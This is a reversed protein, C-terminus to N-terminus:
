GVYVRMVYMKNGATYVAGLYSDSITPKVKWATITTGDVTKYNSIDISEVLEGDDVNYTRLYVKQDSATTSEPADIVYYLSGGRGMLTLSRGNNRNDNPPYKGWVENFSSDYKVIRSLVMGSRKGACVFNNGDFMANVIYTNTDNTTKIRTRGSQTLKYIAGGITCVIENGGSWCPNLALSSDTLTQVVTNNYGVATNNYWLVGGNALRCGWSVTSVATITDVFDAGASSAGLTYSINNIANNYSSTTSRVYVSTWKLTTGNNQTIIDADGWSYRAVLNASSINDIDIINIGTGGTSAGNTLPVFIKGSVVLRSDGIYLCEVSNTTYAQSYNFSFFDVRNEAGWLYKKVGNIFTLGKVLRKKEGNIFVFPRSKRSAITKKAGNVVIKMAM